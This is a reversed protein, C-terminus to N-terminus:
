VASVPGPVFDITTKSHLKRVPPATTCKPYITLHISKNFTTGIGEFSLSLRIQFMWPRLCCVVKIMMNNDCCVTLLWLFIHLTYKPLGIIFIAYRWRRFSKQNLSPSSSDLPRPATRPSSRRVSPSTWCWPVATTPPWNTEMWKVFRQLLVHGANLTMNSSKSFKLFYFTM